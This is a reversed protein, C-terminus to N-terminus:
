LAASVIFNSHVASMIVLMCFSFKELIWSHLHYQANLAPELGLGLTYCVHESILCLAMM